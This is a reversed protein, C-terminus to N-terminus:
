IQGGGYLAILVLVTSSMGVAKYLGHHQYWSKRLSRPLYQRYAHATLAVATAVLLLTVSGLVLPPMVQVSTGVKAVINGSDDAALVSGLPAAAPKEAPTGYLAVVIMTNEGKLSGSAVAFGVDEYDSRLLNERHEPSNMWATVVGGSTRFGKALNEGAVSYAYNAEDFWQWPEVGSPSVHAWYQEALMDNAKLQAAQNLAPNLELSLRGNGLRERNTAALLREQSLDTAMGLVNSNSIGAQMLQLVAVMVLIVALGRRRVLHPRYDNGAYPIAAHRVKRRVRQYVGQKAGTKKAM